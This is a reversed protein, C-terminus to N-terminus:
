AEGLWYLWTGGGQHPWGGGGVCVGKSAYGTYLKELIEYDAICWVDRQMSPPVTPCLALLKSQGRQRQAHEAKVPTRPTPPGAAPKPKAAPAAATAAKTAAAAPPAAANPVSDAEGEGERFAPILGSSASDDSLCSLDVKTLVVAKAGARGGAAPAAAAADPAAAASIKSPALM